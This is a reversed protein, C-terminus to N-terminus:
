YKCIERIKKEFDGSVVTVFFSIERIKELDARYGSVVYIEFVNLFCFPARRPFRFRVVLVLFFKACM